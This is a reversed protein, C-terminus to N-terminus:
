RQVLRRRVISIGFASVAAILIGAPLFLGWYANEFYGFLDQQHRYFKRLIAINPAMAAGTILAALIAALIPGSMRAFALATTISFIAIALLLGFDGLAIEAAISASAALTLIIATVV